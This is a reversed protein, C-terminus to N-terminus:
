ILLTNLSDDKTLGFLLGLCFPSTWKVKFVIPMDPNNKKKEALKDSLTNAIPPFDEKEDFYGDM